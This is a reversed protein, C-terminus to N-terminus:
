ELEQIREELAALAELEMAILERLGEMYAAVDGEPEAISYQRRMAVLNALEQEAQIASNIQMRLMLTPNIVPQRMEQFHAVYDDWEHLMRQYLEEYQQPTLFDEVLELIFTERNVGDCNRDRLSTMLHVYNVPVDPSQLIQDAISRLEENARTREAHWQARVEMAAQGVEPPIIDPRFWSIVGIVTFAICVIASAVPHDKVIQLRDENNPKSM